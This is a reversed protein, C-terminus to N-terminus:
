GGLLEEVQPDAHLRHDGRLLEVLDDRRELPDFAQTRLAHALNARRRAAGQIQQRAHARWVRKDNRDIEHDRRV